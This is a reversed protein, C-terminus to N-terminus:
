WMKITRCARSTAARMRRSDRTLPLRDCATKLLPDHRLRDADNCDEYGQTIQFARQRVQEHRPHLVFSQDRDDPLRAAFGATLGLEDDLPRLLLVGADSSIDPADFQVVIPLQPHYPLPLQPICQTNPIIM